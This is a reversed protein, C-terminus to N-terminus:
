SKIGLLLLSNAVTLLLEMRHGVSCSKQHEPKSAVVVDSVGKCDEVPQTYWLPDVVFNRDHRKSCKHDTETMGPDALKHQQDAEDDDDTSMRMVGAAYRRAVTPRRENGTAADMRQM